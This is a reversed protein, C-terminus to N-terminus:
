NSIAEWVNSLIDSLSFDSETIDDRAMGSAEFEEQGTIGWGQQDAPQNLTQIDETTMKQNITVEEPIHWERRHIENLLDGREAM